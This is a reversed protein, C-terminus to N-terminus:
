PLPNEGGELNKLKQLSEWLGKMKRNSDNVELVITGDFNRLEEWYLSFDIIGEGLPLHEDERGHNDHIHIHSIFPKLENWTKALGDKSVMAHGFDFCVSLKGKFSLVFKKFHSVKLFLDKKDLATNEIAIKINYKEGLNIIKELARILRRKALLIVLFHRAPVLGPHVVVLKVGCRRAYELAKFTSEISSEYILDNLSALNIDIMPLHMTLFINYKEAKKRIKEPDQAGLGKLIVSLDGFLEVVEAGKEKAIDLAKLPLVRKLSTLSFGVKGM